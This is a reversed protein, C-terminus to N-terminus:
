RPMAPYRHAWPLAREMQGALALLRDDAGFAASFMVGIPLGGSTWALPLSISPAGTMNYLALFPAFAFLDRGYQEWDERMLTIKGIEPPLTAFTPQLVIDFREHFRGMARGIRQMTACAAAYDRATLRAGAEVIVHTVPELDERGPDRGLAKAREDIVHATSGFVITGQARRLAMYDIPLSAPEVMHGLEQVLDATSAMAARVEAAIKVGEPEDLVLAVRLPAPDTLTSALFPGGPPPAYADGPEPGTTADLLAASDRVSRSVVHNHSMGNWGDGKDPGSPTRARTPKFGVLGCAAAPLRISGGGDSAHAVPVIGAAVAAAAGGSSGGASRGTDWPNRTPGHLRPETSITLGFEPTNTKGFTVLGAAKYRAVLTADSTAVTGSFFASGNDTATGALGLHLNKLLFPVGAFPGQPLGDAIAQRAVDEHRLVVANIAPDVADMRALAADLLDTPTVDGRRVLTALGMADYATYDQFATM